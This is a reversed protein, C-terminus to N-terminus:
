QRLSWTTGDPGDKLEIGLEGLRERIRDALDFQKAKRLEERVSLLLEILDRLAPVKVDTGGTHLRVTTGVHEVYTAMRQTIGLVRGGLEDYLDGFARLGGQAMEAAEDLLRNVDRTFTSLVGIAGATNFDNEMEALFRTKADEVLRAVQDPPQGERAGLMCWRLRGLTNEIRELGKEAAELAQVSFDLASRYHTTLIFYRLAMARKKRDRESASGSPDFADK